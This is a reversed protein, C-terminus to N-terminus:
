LKCILVPQIQDEPNGAVSTKAEIVQTFNGWLTSSREINAARVRMMYVTHPHLDNIVYEQSPVTPNVIEVSTVDSVCFLQQLLVFYFLVKLLTEM